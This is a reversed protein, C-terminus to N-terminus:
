FTSNETSFPGLPGDATLTVPRQNNLYNISHSAWLTLARLIALGNKVPVPLIWETCFTNKTLRNHNGEGRRQIHHFFRILETTNNM